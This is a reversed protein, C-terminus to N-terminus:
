KCAPRLLKKKWPRCCPIKEKTITGPWRCTLRANEASLASPTNEIRLLVQGKQVLDGEEVLQEELIGLVPAYALYLSDPQVVASAYVSSTLAQETPYIAEEKNQCGLSLALLLLGFYLPLSRKM